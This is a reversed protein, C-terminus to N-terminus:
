WSGRACSVRRARHRDSIARIEDRMTTDPPADARDLEIMDSM